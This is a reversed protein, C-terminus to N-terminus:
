GMMSIHEIKVDSKEVYRIQKENVEIGELNALYSITDNIRIWAVRFRFDHDNFYSKSYWQGRNEILFNYISICKDEFKIRPKSVKSLSKIDPFVDGSLEVLAASIENIRTSLGQIKLATKEFNNKMSDYKGAKEKWEAIENIKTDVKM